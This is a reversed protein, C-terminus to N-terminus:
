TTGMDREQKFNNLNMRIHVLEVHVLYLPNHTVIIILDNKTQWTISKLPWWPIAWSSHPAWKETASVLSPFTNVQYAKSSSTNIICMHAHCSRYAYMMIWTFTYVVCVHCLRYIYMTCWLAQLHIGCVCVCVCVCVSVYMYTWVNSM